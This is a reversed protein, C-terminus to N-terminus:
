RNTAWTSISIPGCVLAAYLTSAGHRMKTATLLSPDEVGGEQCVNNTAHWGSVHDESSQTSPFVYINNKHVGADKRIQLDVLKRIGEVMDGPILISVLRKTGEGSQYAIKTNRVLAKEAPHQLQDIFRKEIWSDAEVEHWESMHLRSQEGGRRSDVQM